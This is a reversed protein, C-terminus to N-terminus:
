HQSLLTTNWLCCVETGWDHTTISQVITNSQCTVGTNVVTVTCGLMACVQGLVWVVAM